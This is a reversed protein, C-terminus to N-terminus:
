YRVSKYNNVKKGFLTKAKEKQGQSMSNQNQSHLILKL